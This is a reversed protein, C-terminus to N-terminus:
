QNEARLPQAPAGSARRLKAVQDATVAPAHNGWSSRVFSLVDAIDRDTLREAFAPMAYHTPGAKTWPMEGGQLVIHILSSPDDSNVVTSLGLTPFTEKYGSGSTRHCAACNDVFTLAVNGRDTGACPCVSTRAAVHAPVPTNRPSPAAM